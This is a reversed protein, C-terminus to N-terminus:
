DGIPEDYRAQVTGEVVYQLGRVCFEQYSEEMDALTPATPKVACEQCKGFKADLYAILVKAADADTLLDAWTAAKRDLTQTVADTQYLM